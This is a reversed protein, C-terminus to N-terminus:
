GLESVGAIQTRAPDRVIRLHLPLDEYLLEPKAAAEARRSVATWLRKLYRLDTAIEEPGIGEAATRLIFGGADSMQEDALVKTLVKHLRAREPLEEIM